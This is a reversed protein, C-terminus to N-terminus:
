DINLCAPEIREVYCDRYHALTARKAIICTSNAEKAFLFIGSSIIFALTGAIGMVAIFAGSM